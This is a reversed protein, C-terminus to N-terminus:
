IRLAISLQALPSQASKQSSRLWSIFEKSGSFEFFPRDSIAAPYAVQQLATARSSIFKLESESNLAPLAMGQDHSTCQSSVPMVLGLNSPVDSGSDDSQEHCEIHRVDGQPSVCTRAQCLLACSPNVVLAFLLAITAANFYTPRSIRSVTRRM